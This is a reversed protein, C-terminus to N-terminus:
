AERATTVQSPTPARQATVGRSDPVSQFLLVGTVPEATPKALWRHAGRGRLTFRAILAAHAAVVRRATRGDAIVLCPVVRAPTPWGLQRAIQPGLRTKVDLRGLTDQVDGLRTKVEVILLTGTPAHYAVADCRGRDGYWNFSVEVEVEWESRRVQGVVTEQLRAHGADMLRDLQEGHWRLEVHLSANLAAAIRHLSGVTLTEVQGREVRSVLERSAGARGALDEQRWGQRQRLFRVARNVNQRLM